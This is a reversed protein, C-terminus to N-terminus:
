NNPIPLVELPVKKPKILAPLDGEIVKLIEVNKRERVNKVAWASILLVILMVVLVSILIAPLHMAASVPKEESLDEEAFVSSGSVPSQQSNEITSAFRGAARSEQDFKELLEDPDAQYVMCIREIFSKCYHDHQRIKHFDGSELNLIFAQSSRVKLAVDAVTMGAEARLNRLQEGFSLPELCLEESVSVVQNEANELPREVGSEIASAGESAAEKGPVEPVIGGAPLPPVKLEANDPSAAMSSNGAPAEDPSRNEQQFLEESNRINLM